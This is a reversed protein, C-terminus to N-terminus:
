RLKQLYIVWTSAPVLSLALARLIEAGFKHHGFAFWTSVKHFLTHPNENVGRFLGGHNIRDITTSPLNRCCGLSCSVTRHSGMCNRTDLDQPDSTPYKGSLLFQM